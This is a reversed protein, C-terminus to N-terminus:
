FPLWSAGIALEIGKIFLFIGVGFYIIRAVKDGFLRNFLKGSHTVLRWNLVTGIMALLGVLVLIIGATTNTM